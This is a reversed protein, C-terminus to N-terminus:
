ARGGDLEDLAAFRYGVGWVTRIYRPSAPDQELKARLRNIHTNVTHDYGQFEPGWVADLLEGRSFSRGPQQAFALLLAFEKATLALPRGSLTARHQDPEIVLAGYRLPQHVPTTEVRQRDVQLRRFLAGIRAALESADFPKTVYEDAGLELGLVVDQLAARATLMLIPTYGDEARIARCIELGDMDPLMLDLIVLDYPKEGFRSLGIAGDAAADVRYGLEHLQEHLLERIRADDEICLIHHRSGM